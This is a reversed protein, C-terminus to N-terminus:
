SVVNTKNLIINWIDYYETPSQRIGIHLQSTCVLLRPLKLFLTNCTIQQQFTSAFDLNSYVYYSINALERLIGTIYADNIRIIQQNEKNAAQVLRQCTKNSFLFGITFSYSPYTNPIYEYKTVPWRGTRYVPIKHRFWGFIGDKRKFDLQHRIYDLLLFINLLLDDDIRFLYRVTPCYLRLWFLAALEKFTMFTQHEPIDLLVILDISLL